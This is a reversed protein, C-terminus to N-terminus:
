RHIRREIHTWKQIELFSGLTLAAGSVDEFMDGSKNEFGSPAEPSDQHVSTLSSKGHNRHEYRLSLWLGKLM